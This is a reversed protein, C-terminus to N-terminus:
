LQSLDRALRGEGLCFGWQKLYTQPNDIERSAWHVGGWEETWNAPSDSFGM